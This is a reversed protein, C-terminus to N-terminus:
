LLMALQLFHALVLLGAIALYRSVLTTQRAVSEIWGGCMWRREVCLKKRCGHNRSNDVFNQSRQWGPIRLLM